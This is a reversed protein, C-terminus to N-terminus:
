LQLHLVSMQQLLEACIEIFLDVVQIICFSFYLGGVRVYLPNFGFIHTCLYLGIYPYFFEVYLISFNILFLLLMFVLFLLLFPIVVALLIPTAGINFLLTNRFLFSFLSFLPSKSTM